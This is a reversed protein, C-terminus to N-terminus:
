LPTAILMKAWRRDLFDARVESCKHKHRKARVRSSPGKPAGSHARPAGFPAGFSAGNLAGGKLGGKLGGRLSRGLPGPGRRAVWPVVSPM